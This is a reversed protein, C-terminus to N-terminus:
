EQAAEKRPATQAKQAAELADIRRQQDGQKAAQYGVAGALVVACGQLFLTVSLMALLAKM